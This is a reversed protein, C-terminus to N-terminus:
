IVGQSILIQRIKYGYKGLIKELTEFDGNITANYAPHSLWDFLSIEDSIVEEFILIDKVEKLMAAISKKSKPDYLNARFEPTRNTAFYMVSKM